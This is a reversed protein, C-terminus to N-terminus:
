LTKVAVSSFRLLFLKFPCIFGTAADPIDVGSFWSVVRSGLHQLFKKIRSFHEIQDIPRVGFVVDMRGSLVPAILYEICRTDYQNDGDANVIIDAGPELCRNIGAMFTTALGKKTGLRYIHHVGLSQAIKATDGTSGDDVVLYEIEDVYPLDRLQDRVVNPLTKEENYCPIQIILKM